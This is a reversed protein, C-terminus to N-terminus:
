QSLKLYFVFSVETVIDHKNAGIETPNSAPWVHYTVYTWIDVSLMGLPLRQKRASINQYPQWQKNNYQGQEAQKEMINTM